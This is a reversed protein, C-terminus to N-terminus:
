AQVLELTGRERSNVEQHVRVTQRPSPPVGKVRSLGVSTAIIRVSATM